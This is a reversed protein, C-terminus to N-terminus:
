YSWILASVAHHVDFRNVGLFVQSRCEYSDLLYPSCWGARRFTILQFDQCDEDLLVFGLM